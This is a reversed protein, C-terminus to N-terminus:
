TQDASTEKARYVLQSSANKGRGNRPRKERKEKPKRESKAPKQETNGSVEQEAVEPASQAGEVATPEVTTEEEPADTAKIEDEANQPEVENQDDGEEM